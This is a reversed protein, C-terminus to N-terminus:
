FLNYLDNKRAGQQLKVYREGIIWRFLSPNLRKFIVNDWTDFSTLYKQSYPITMFVNKESLLVFVKPRDELIFSFIQASKM